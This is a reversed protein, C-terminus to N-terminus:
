KGPSWWVPLPDPVGTRIRRILLGIRERGEADQPGRLAAELLPLVATGERLLARSAEERTAPDTHSLRSITKELGAAREESLRVPPPDAASRYERLLLFKRESLDGGPEARFGALLDGSSGICVAPSGSGGRVGATVADDERWSSGADRSM